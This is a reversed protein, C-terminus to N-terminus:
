PKRELRPPARLIPLLKMGVEGSLLSPTDHGHRSLWRANGAKEKSGLSPDTNGWAGPSLRDGDNKSEALHSRQMGSGRPLVQGCM